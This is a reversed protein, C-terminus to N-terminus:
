HKRVLYAMCMDPTIMEEIGKERQDCALIIRAAEMRLADLQFPFGITRGERNRYVVAIGKVDEEINPGKLVIPMLGSDFGHVFEVSDPDPVEDLLQMVNDM